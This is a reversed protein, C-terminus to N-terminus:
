QLPIQTNALNCFEQAEEKTAFAYDESITRKFKNVEYPSLKGESNTLRLKLITGVETITIEEVYYECKVQPVVSSYSVSVWEKVTWIPEETTRISGTGNCKPCRIEYQEGAIPTEIEGKGGCLVCTEFIISKEIIYVTDGINFKTEFIM